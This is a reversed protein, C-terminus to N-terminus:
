RTATTATTAATATEESTGTGAGTGTFTISHWHNIGLSASVRDPTENSGRLIYNSYRREQGGWEWGNWHGASLTQSADAVRSPRRRYWVSIRDKRHCKQMPWMENGSLCM